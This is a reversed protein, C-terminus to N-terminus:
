LTDDEDGDSPREAEFWVFLVGHHWDEDPRKAHTALLGYRLDPLHLLPSLQSIDAQSPPWQLTVGELYEKSKLNLLRLAGQLAPGPESGAIVRDAAAQLEAPTELRHSPLKGRQRELAASLEQTIKKLEASDFLSYAVVSAGFGTEPDTYGALALVDANSDLLLARSTPEVLRAGLWDGVDGRYAVGLTVQASLIPEQIARGALLEKRIQLDFDGDNAVQEEVVQKQLQRILRGEPESFRLPSAHAQARLENITRVLASDTYVADPFSVYPKHYDAHRATPREALVDLSRDLFNTDDGARIEVWAEDDAPAMPCVFGFRPMRLAEAATCWGTGITGQNILAESEHYPATFEGEIRVNGQADPAQAHVNVAAVDAHTLVGITFNGANHVAFGFQNARVTNPPVLFTLMQQTLASSLPVGYDTGVDFLNIRSVWFFAEPAGCRGAMWRQLMDDPLADHEADFAAIERAVCAYEDSWRAGNLAARLPAEFGRELANVPRELERFKWAFPRLYHNKKDDQQGARTSSPQAGSPPKHPACGPLTLATFLLLVPGSSALTTVTM